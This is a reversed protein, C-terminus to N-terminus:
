KKLKKKYDAKAKDYFNAYTVAMYPFLWIYLIGATFLGLILWGVFSLSLIIYDLVHGSMIDISKNFIEVLSLKEEDYLIFLVQSFYISLAIFFVAIAICLLVGLVIMLASAAVNLDNQYFVFVSLSNTAIFELLFCVTSMFYFMIAIGLAKIFLDTRNFLDSLSTKKKRAVKIIIEILGMGLVGTLILQLVSGVTTYQLLRNTFLCGGTLLSYILMALIVTGYNGKLNKRAKEKLLNIDM